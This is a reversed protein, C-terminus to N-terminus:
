PLNQQIAREREREKEKARGGGGVYKVAPTVRSSAGRWARMGRADADEAHSFQPPGGGARV